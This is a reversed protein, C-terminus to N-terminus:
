GLTIHSKEVGEECVIVCPSCSCMDCNVQIFKGINRTIQKQKMIAEHCIM